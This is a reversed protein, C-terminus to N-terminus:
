RRSVKQVQQQIIQYRGDHVGMRWADAGAIMGEYQLSGGILPREVYQPKPKKIFERLAFMPDIGQKRMDEAIKMIPDPMNEEEDYWGELIEGEDDYEEPNHDPDPEDARVLRLPVKRLEVLQWEAQALRLMFKEKTWNEMEEFTIDPFATKIIVEAQADFSKM